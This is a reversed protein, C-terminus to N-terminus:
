YIGPGYMEDMAALEGDSHESQSQDNEDDDSMNESLDEDEDNDSGTNEENDNPLDESADSHLEEHQDEDPTPPLTTKQYAYTHGVGLGWHYRMVMDRDVFRAILHIIVNPTACIHFAGCSMILGGTVQIELANLSALAVQTSKAV